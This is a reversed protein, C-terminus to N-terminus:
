HCFYIRSYMCKLCPFLDITTLIEKRTVGIEASSLIDSSSISKEQVFGSSEYFCNLMHLLTSKDFVYYVLCQM